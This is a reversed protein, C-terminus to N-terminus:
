KRVITKLLRCTRRVTDKIDRFCNCNIYDVALKMKFTMLSVKKECARQKGSAYNAYGIAANARACHANNVNYECAYRPCIRKDASCGAARAADQESQAGDRIAHVSLFFNTDRPYSKRPFHM